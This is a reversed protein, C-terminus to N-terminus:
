QGGRALRTRLGGSNVKEAALEQRVAALEHQSAEFRHQVGALEHQSAEFRHQLAALEHQKVQLQQRLNHVTATDGAPEMRGNVMRETAALANVIDVQVNSPLGAPFPAGPPVSVFALAGCNTFMEGTVKVASGFQVQKLGTCGNFPTRGVQTLNSCPRFDLATLNTCNLFANDGCSSVSTACKGSTTSISSASKSILSDPLSLRAATGIRVYGHEAVVLAPHVIRDAGTVEVLQVAIAPSRSRNRVQTVSIPQDIQEDLSACHLRQSLL